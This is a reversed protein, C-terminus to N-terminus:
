KGNVKVETFTVRPDKRNVLDVFGVEYAYVGSRAAEVFGYESEMNRVTVPIDGELRLYFRMLNVIVPDTFVPSEKLYASKDACQAFKSYHTVYEVGLHHIDLIPATEVWHQGESYAWDFAQFCEAYDPQTLNRLMVARLELDVANGDEKTRYEMNVHRTVM